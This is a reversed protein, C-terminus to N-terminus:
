KTPATRRMITKGNLIGAIQWSQQTGVKVGYITAVFDFLENDEDYNLTFQPEMDLVPVYGSDRMQDELVRLVEEKHQVLNDESVKGELFFKKINDHM